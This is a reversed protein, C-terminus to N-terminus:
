SQHSGRSNNLKIQSRLSRVVPIELSNFERFAQLCPSVTNIWAPLLIINNVLPHHSSPCSFFLSPSPPSPLPFEKQSCRYNQSLQNRLGWLSQTQSPANGRVQPLLWDVNHHLCQTVTTNAPSPMLNEKILQSKTKLDTLWIKDTLM